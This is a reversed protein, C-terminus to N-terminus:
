KGDSGLLQNMRALRKAEENEKKVIENKEIIVQEMKVYGSSQFLLLLSLFTIAIAWFSLYFFARKVSIFFFGILPIMVLVILVLRITQMEAFTLWNSHDALTERFDKEQVKLSGWLFRNLCGRKKKKIALKRKWYEKDEM